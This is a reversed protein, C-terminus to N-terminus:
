VVPSGHVGHHVVLDPKGGDRAPRPGARVGGVDGLSVARGDQVDVRVVGSATTRAHRRAASQRDSHADSTTM